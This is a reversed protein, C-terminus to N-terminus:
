KAPAPNDPAPVPVSHSLLSLLRSLGEPIPAESAHVTIELAGSRNTTSESSSRSAVSGKLSANVWPSLLAGTAAQVEASADKGDSAKFTQTIEYTFHVTLADIKLHPLPVVTLLPAVITTNQEVGGTTTKLQLQISIPKGDKDILSQVFDRTAQAALRQANVAATLPAAVIFDLPLAQFEAAPFTQLEAM